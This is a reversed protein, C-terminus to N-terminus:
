KEVITRGPAKVENLSTRELLEALKRVHVLWRGGVKVGPLRGERCMRSVAAASLGLHETVEAPLALQPLTESLHAWRTM